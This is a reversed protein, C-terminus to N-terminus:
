ADLRVAEDVFILGVGPTGSIQLLGRHHALHHPECLLILNELSHDGGEARPKLHHIDIWRHNRCWPVRCRGGDRAIVARRTPEPIEMVRKAREDGVIRPNCLLRDVEAVDLEVRRGGADAWFRGGDAEVTTILHRQGPKAAGGSLVASAFLELLEGRDLVRGLEAELVSTAALVKALQGPRM